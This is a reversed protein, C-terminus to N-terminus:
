AKHPDTRVVLCEDSRAKSSPGTNLASRLLKSQYRSGVAHLTQLFHGVRNVTYQLLGWGRGKTKIARGKGKQDQERAM